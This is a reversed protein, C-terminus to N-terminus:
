DVSDMPAARSGRRQFSGTGCGVLSVVVALAADPEFNQGKCLTVAVVGWVLAASIPVIVFPKTIGDTIALIWSAAFTPFLVALSVSVGYPIRCKTISLVIMAAFRFMFHM